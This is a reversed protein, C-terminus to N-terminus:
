KSDLLSPHMCPIVFPRVPTNQNYHCILTKSKITVYHFKKDNKFDKLMQWVRKDAGEFVDLARLCDSTDKIMTCIYM